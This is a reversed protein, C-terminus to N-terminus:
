RKEQLMFQLRGASNMGIKILAHDLGSTHTYEISYRDRQKRTCLVGAKLYALIIDNSLSQTARKDDMTIRPNEAGPFATVVQAGLQTDYWRLYAIGDQVFALAPRMNQDFAISIEAIGPASYLVVPAVHEAELMVDDGNIYAHWEQYNLGRSPDNLAVGGTEYDSDHRVYLRRGGVFQAPVPASSLADGPMM